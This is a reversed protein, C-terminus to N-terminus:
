LDLYLEGAETRRIMVPPFADGVDGAMFHFHAREICELSPWLRVAGGYFKQENYIRVARSAHLLEAITYDPFYVTKGMIFAFFRDLREEARAMSDASDPLPNVILSGVM